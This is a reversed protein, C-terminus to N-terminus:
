RLCDFHRIIEKTALPARWGCCGSELVQFELGMKQMVLKEEQLRMIAKQHCHGQWLPAANSNRLSITSLNSKWFSRWRSVDAGYAKSCRCSHPLMGKLEDRFVSCCSPELVVM